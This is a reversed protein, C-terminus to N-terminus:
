EWAMWDLQLSQAWGLGGNDVRYVNVKFDATTIQTTTVVFVDQYTAQGRATAIVAPPSKFAEPFTVSFTNVGSSGKGVTATGAQIRKFTTGEPAVQLGECYVSGSQDVRFHLTGGPFDGGRAQILDGGKSWAGVGAGNGSNWGAVGWSGGSQARGLVGATTGSTATAEGYVGRGATSNSQGYVGYTTGSGSLAYGYVGRGDTSVSTGSVGFARGSTNSAYGIVGRGDTSDSIGSVGCASGSKATARGGVGVGVSSANTGLVGYNEASTHTAEGRVGAGGGANKGYVGYTPGSTAAAEGYVGRGDTSYSLGYVGYTTGSTAFAYGYVGRGATSLSVGYVGYNIGSTATAEGYVGSGRDSASLGYVGRTTGSSASAEGFVGFGGTSLSRGYVGYTNGSTAIAAGFVGRGAPSDSLGYVGYTTGSSKHAYGYVGRGATSDSVGYVGYARGSSNSAYGGVGVGDTSESRGFVGYTTGSTASAFGGVSIGTSSASKGLVGYTTGDAELGINGGSLTLGTGWGSWTAGWHNHSAPAYRSDTYGTDLSLTVAGTEGGGSLGTGANVATIDGGGGSGVDDTACVWASGNWEPIQGNTCTQPLRYPPAVSFTTSSLALGTGASYTTNDDAECTVTGDPNVVRIANGAACTASVRRQLYTTDAALTVDGSDGGGSLGTGANVATIDGGGGGSGVDDTACTWATGDWEAIQGSACSQPLRYGPAIHLTVEGSDGGGSLGTGATVATIDGGGGGTGVDDAACVWATGNWEAIQGSACSQPLRYAAAVSFATGSLSLGTGASYTTDDDVGDAFGAPVGSLGSWPAGTAWLAYPAPTLPQRPTLPTYAGSGAPCRVAIELWRAEGTFRGSGFDLRVTFYGDTLLVGSLTQTTGAQTGGAEADWLGFQLDCTGSYPAGGSQLRGQYTFATGPPGAAPAEAAALGALLLLVCTAAVGSGLLRKSRM